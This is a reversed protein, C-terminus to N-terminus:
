GVDAPAPEQGASLTDEMRMSRSGKILIYAGKLGAKELWEGAQRANELSLWPHQTRLFDGGVLLVQKWPYQRILEVIERHENESDPGLEAMAGLILIKGGGGAVGSVGAADGHM